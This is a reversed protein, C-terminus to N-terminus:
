LRELFKRRALFRSTEAHVLDDFVHFGSARTILLLQLTLRRPGDQRTAQKWLLSNAPDPNTVCLREAVANGLRAM